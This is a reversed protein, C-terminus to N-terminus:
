LKTLILENYAMELADIFPCTDGDSSLVRQIQQAYSLIEEEMGFTSSHSLIEWKRLAEEEISYPSGIQEEM